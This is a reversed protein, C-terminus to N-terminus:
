KTMFRCVDTICDQVPRFSYGLAAKIKQSSYYERNTASMAMGRDILPTFRFVKALMELVFGLAYLVSRSVGILPRKKGFGDAMWSLIDKNSCNESVLIFREGSIESDTLWIMSRAVDQVDIYGSGGRTYFPLGRRVQAFLQSSGSETGSVGLIVGPNVIVANLGAKIGKWVEAESYYKSRSYASKKGTDEWRTKEDILAATGCAAISSVFCFKRIGKELAAEVMNKTGSVNTDIMTESGNGLNVVAACHYVVDAGSLAEAVSRKDLVDAVRWQIRDLYEDPSGTYYSFITRLPSLNSTARKIAWVRDREQLLHWLLHGGVLGTAGTVIINNSNM